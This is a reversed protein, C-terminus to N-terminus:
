KKKRLRSSAIFGAVCTGLLLLASPEPVSDSRAFTLDDLVPVYGSVNFFAIDNTGREIGRFGGDNIGGPTIIDALATINYSELLNMGSDFASIMLDESFDPAHNMFGGVVSVPGDNFSFTFSGPRADNGGIFTMGDGWRGNSVLGWGSWNLYLGTNPNGDVTVDEGVFTGVQVPGSVDGLTAFGEFDIITSNSITDTTILTANSAGVLCFSIFLFMALRKVQM